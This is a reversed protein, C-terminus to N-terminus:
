VANQSGGVELSQYRSDSNSKMNEIASVIPALNTGLSGKILILDGARLEDSM